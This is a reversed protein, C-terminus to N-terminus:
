PETALIPDQDHDGTEDVLSHLRYPGAGATAIGEIGPQPRRPSRREVRSARPGDAVSGGPASGPRTHDM